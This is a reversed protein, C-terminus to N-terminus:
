HSTESKSESSVAPDPLLADKTYHCAANWLIWEGVGNDMVAEIEARVMAPNYKVGLSFDQLYPRLEVNTGRIFKLTDQMSRHITEYPSANPKKIGFEGRAYHSPYMMPSLVDVHKLLPPLYQGIGQDDNNSAVIGFTDISTEINLPKLRTQVLDLFGALAKVASSSSHHVSYRCLRTPGDSPFRFYDFQIGQFGLRAAQEAIELNYEWVKRNYPDAWGHGNRDLWVDSRLGKEKAKELPVASKVAWDPKEKVLKADKFVTMRAIAYVGREKLFKLYEEIKPMAPKYVSIKGDLKVGPIFIDGEIEKIDIVVTNLETEALLKEFKARGKLSGVYYATLHIGKVCSPRANPFDGWLPIPQTSLSTKAPGEKSKESCSVFISPLTVLLCTLLSFRM